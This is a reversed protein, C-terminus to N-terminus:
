AQILQYKLIKFDKCFNCIFRFNANVYQLDVKTIKSFESCPHIEFIIIESWVIISDYLKDGMYVHVTRETCM